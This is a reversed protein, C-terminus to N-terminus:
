HGIQSTATFGEQGSKPPNSLEGLEGTLPTAGAGDDLWVPRPPEWTSLGGQGAWVLM